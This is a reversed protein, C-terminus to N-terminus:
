KEEKQRKASLAPTFLISVQDPLNIGDSATVSEPIIAAQYKQSYFNGRYFDRVWSVLEQTTKVIFSNALKAEVEKADQESEAFILTPHKNM